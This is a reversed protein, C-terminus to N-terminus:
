IPGVPGVQLGYCPGKPGVPGVQLDHCLTGLFFNKEEKEAITTAVSTKETELRSRLKGFAAILEARNKTMSKYIAKPPRRRDASLGDRQADTLEEATLGIM